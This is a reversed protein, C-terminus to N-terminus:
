DNPNRSAIMLTNNKRFDIFKSYDRLYDEEDYKKNCLVTLISNEKKYIQQAWIGPPIFLGQDSSDLIYTKEQEGDDCLVEIVGTTCHLFQSCHRHAHNGRIAGNDALVTFVRAISFPINGSEMVVLEGNDRSHHPLSILIVSDIFNM